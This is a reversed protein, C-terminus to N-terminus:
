RFEKYIEVMLQKKLQESSPSNKYYAGAARIHGGGNFKKALSAVNVKNKSRFSIKYNKNSTEKCVIILETNELKRFFNITSEKSQNIKFPIFVIIFPHTKDIYLNDLGCKIDEFYAITKSEFIWESIQSIPIGLELLEAAIKFTQPTTNSFKFNGTDFCIAAYLNIATSKDININLIKFLNYIIEGVSSIQLVVNFDGFHTNDQHHDINISENFKPFSKPNYIRNKDSCDLFFALDYHSDVDKKILHIEPLKKFQNIDIDPAYLTITKGMKNILKNLALLSGIADFDPDKHVTAILKDPLNTLKKVFDNNIM